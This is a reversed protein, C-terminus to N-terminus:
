EKKNSIKAGYNRNFIKGLDGNEIILNGDKQMSMVKHKRSRGEEEVRVNNMFMDKVGEHVLIGYPSNFGKVVGNELTCKPSKIWISAVEDDGGEIVFNKVSGYESMLRLPMEMNEGKITLNNIDYIPQRMNIGSKCGEIIINDLKLNCKGSLSMAFDNKADKILMSDIKITTGPASKNIFFGYVKPEIVQINNMELDWYGATKIGRKSRISKVKSVKGTWRDGPNAVSWDGNMSSGSFDISYEGDDVSTHNDIELHHLVGHNYPNRAGIAHNM